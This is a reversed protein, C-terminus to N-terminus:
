RPTRPAAAGWHHDPAPDDAVVRRTGRGSSSTTTATATPGRPGLAAALAAAGAAGGALLGKRTLARESM